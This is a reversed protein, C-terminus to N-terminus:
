GGEVPMWKEVTITKREVRVPTVDGGYEFPKYDDQCETSGRDWVFMYHVGTPRHEFVCQITTVWRRQDIIEQTSALMTWADHEEQVVQRAEEESLKM